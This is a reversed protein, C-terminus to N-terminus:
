QLDTLWLKRISSSRSSSPRHIASTGSRAPTGSRPWGLDLWQGRGPARVGLAQRVARGNRPAPLTGARKRGQRTLAQGEAFARRTKAARRRIPHVSFRWDPEWRVRARAPQDSQTNAKWSSSSSPGRMSTRRAFRVPRRGSSRQTSFSRLGPSGQHPKRAQKRFTPSLVGRWFGRQRSGFGGSLVQPVTSSSVPLRVARERVEPSYRTPRAM